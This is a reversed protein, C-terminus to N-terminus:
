YFFMDIYGYLVYYSTCRSYSVMPAWDKMKDGAVTVFSAIGKFMGM